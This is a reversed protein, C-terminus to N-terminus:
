CFEVGGCDEDAGGRGRGWSPPVGIAGDGLGGGGKEGLDCSTSRPDALLPSLFDFSPLLSDLRILCPILAKSRRCRTRCHELLPLRIDM